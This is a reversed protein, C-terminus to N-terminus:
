QMNQLLQRFLSIPLGRAQKKIKRRNPRLATVAQKKEGIHYQAVDGYM